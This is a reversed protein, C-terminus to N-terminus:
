TRRGCEPCRGSLNGRLDYGCHLCLGLRQRRITRIFLIAGYVCYTLAVVAMALVTLGAIRGTVTDM